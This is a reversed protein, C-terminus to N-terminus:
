PNIRKFEEVWVWRDDFSGKGNIKEWLSQFSEKASFAPFDNDGRGYHIFEGECTAKGALRCTECKSIDGDVLCNPEVGEAKADEESIDNLREIRLDTMDLAVRSMWRCMFISPRLKGWITDPHPAGNSEYYIANPPLITELESPKIHDLGSYSRYNEKVWLRDGAKGQPCILYEDDYLDAILSYGSPSCADRAISHCQQPQVKMIRRTQTKRGDRIANVMEAKFIIPHEKIFHRM